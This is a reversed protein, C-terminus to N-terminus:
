QVTAPDVVVVVSFESGERTTRDDVPQGSKLPARHPRVRRPSARRVQLRRAVSGVESGNQM